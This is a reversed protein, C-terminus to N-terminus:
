IFRLFRQIYNLFFSPFCLLPDRIVYYFQDVFKFRVLVSLLSAAGNPLIARREISGEVERDSSVYMLRKSSRSVNNLVM